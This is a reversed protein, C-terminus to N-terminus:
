PRLRRRSWPRSLPEWLYTLKLLVTDISPGGAFQALNVGGPGEAPDYPVQQHSRTYVLLLASGPQYEWRLAVNLNITGIRFETPAAGPPPAGVPYFSTIPLYPREGSATSAVINSFHGSAVFLQAYAQLSLTRTFAYSGRITIDFSNSELDGFYYTRDLTSDPSVCNSQSDCTKFWRPDGFTWNVNSVADIELPPIPRLSLQLNNMLAVGNLVRFATSELRAVVRRGPATQVYLNVFFSELGGIRETRAGDRTERNDVYDSYLQPEYRIGMEWFNKFRLIWQVGAFNYLNDGLDWSREYVGYFSVSTELLAGVPRTTRWTLRARFLHFNAQDLYGMDNIMLQPNAGSYGLTFLWHEGGYKGVEAKVGLGLQRPSVLTGDPVFRDPGNDLVSVVGQAGAGWSGDATRLLLDLGGTYADNSCRGDVPAAGTPCLDGPQPAASQPPEFRTLATGIVGISSNAGFEQRLRLVAFNSLPDVLWTEKPDGPARQIAVDQEATVADLLGISLRKALLGSLKVAGWIRGQSLPEAQVGLPPLNPPLPPRGIRRSYFLQFSDLTVHTSFIDSGEIFFPRKEPYYTELTTLNLVLQDAEVQGFDPNVSVDLTLAPTLGLKLDFGANGGYGLGDLPPQNSRVQLWGAVYPILQFLRPPRVDVLGDLAGYYSVEGHATRPIYAWEDIEQRRPLYRRVEIGFTNASGEYRLTSFPIKFEASWGREDRSTAGYWLGDWDSRYDTDNFYVGDVQVGTVNLGFHYASAHDNKSSIDITVRDAETERDRSTLRSVIERPNSDQSRVAVYIANADYLVRLETRETPSRGEDPFKQTFHADAPAARWAEDDLRGDIKPPTETRVAVLRPAPGAPLSPEDGRAPGAGPLMLFLWLFILKKPRGAARRLVGLKSM